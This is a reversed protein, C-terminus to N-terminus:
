RSVHGDNATLPAVPERARADEDAPDAREGFHRPIKARAARLLLHGVVQAGLARLAPGAEALAVDENKGPRNVRGYWGFVPLGIAAARQRVPLVSLHDADHAMVVTVDGPSSGDLIRAAALGPDGSDNVIGTYDALSVASRVDVQAGSISHCLDWGLNHALHEASLALAGGEPVVVNVRGQRAAVGALASSVRDIWRIDPALAGCVEVAARALAGDADQVGSTLAHVTKLVLYLCAHASDEIVQQDESDILVGPVGLRRLAGGARGTLGLVPVGSALCHRAVAVLNRSNGSGSILVVLDSSTLKDRVLLRVASNEFGNRGVEDMLRHLDWAGICKAGSAEGLIECALWGMAQAIASSGGNGIARVTANEARVATAFLEVPPGLQEEVSSEVCARIQEVYDTVFSTVWPLETSM